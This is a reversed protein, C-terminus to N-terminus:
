AEGETKKKVEAWKECTEGLHHTYTPEHFFKRECKDCIKVFNSM